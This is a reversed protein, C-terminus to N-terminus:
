QIHKCIRLPSWKKAFQKENKDDKTDKGKGKGTGKDKENQTGKEGEKGKDKEDKKKWFM